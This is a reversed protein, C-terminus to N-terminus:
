KIFCESLRESMLPPVANGVQRATSILSGSFVFSDPFTQLRAAERVSIARDQEPHGFRGNSYSICKTTLTSAPAMWSMRGYVDTHGNYDKHCETQLYDPWNRRDGGEPTNKIRLLNKESLKATAHNPVNPHKEGALIPPLDFICDKVTPIMGQYKEVILKIPKIKHKNSAAVLIFRKRIQPIGIDSAKIIATDFTYELRTLSDTFKKFVGGSKNINQLGPVNELFIFDPKWYEVFRQFESLLNKRSDDHKIQRRQGTFPQCPACGCFLLPFNGIKNIIHSLDEPSTKRIDNEIFVAQPFNNRFTESSDKDCDLAGVIEFGQKQFGLSTGGCGSFFDFVKIM